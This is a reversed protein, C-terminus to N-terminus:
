TKNSTSRPQDTALWATCAILYCLPSARLGAPHPRFYTNPYAM